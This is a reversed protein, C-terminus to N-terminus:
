STIFNYLESDPTHSMIGAFIYFMKDKTKKAHTLTMFFDKVCNLKKITKVM